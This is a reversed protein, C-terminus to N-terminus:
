LIGAASKGNGKMRRAGDKRKEAFAENASIKSSIVAGDTFYRVRYRWMAAMKLDLLATGHDAARLYRRKLDRLPNAPFATGSTAVASRQGIASM